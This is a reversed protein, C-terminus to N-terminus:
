EVDIVKSEMVSIELIDIKEVGDQNIAQAITYSGPSTYTFSYHSSPNFINNSTSYNFDYQIVSVSSDVNEDIIQVELPSCGHIIDVEFRGLNSLQSLIVHSNSFCIIILLIFRMM